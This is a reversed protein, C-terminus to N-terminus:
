YRAAQVRKERDAGRPYKESPQPLLSFVAPFAIPPAWPRVARRKKYTDRTGDISDARDLDLHWLLNDPFGEGCAILRREIVLTM